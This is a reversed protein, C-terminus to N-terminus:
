EFNEKCNKCNQLIKERDSDTMYISDKMMLVPSEIDVNCKGQELIEFLHTKKFIYKNEEEIKECDITGGTIFLKITM